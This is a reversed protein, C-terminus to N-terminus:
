GEEGPFLEEVPVELLRSLARKEKDSPDLWGRIIRSLRADSMGVKKAVLQQQLNKAFIAHRLAARALMPMSPM